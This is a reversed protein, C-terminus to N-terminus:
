SPQALGDDIVMAVFAAIDQARRAPDDDYASPHSPNERYRLADHVIPHWREPFVRLAHRGGGSKSTMAGTALLHHLRSVGLVCWEAVWSESAGAPDKQVAALQGRWFMDLNNRTFARLVPDDTWVDVESLGPGRITVGHRALGHWTVPNLEFRGASTFITGFANPADPCDDPSRALDERVLHIGDFHPKPFRAAVEAHAAALSQLASDDPRDPLLAVFDVDSSTPFFEGFGLSGHLYLAEVLGPAAVDIEALFTGIVSEVEVPLSM